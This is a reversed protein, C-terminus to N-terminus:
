TKAPRKTGNAVEVSDSITFFQLTPGREAEVPFHLIKYFEDVLEDVDPEFAKTMKELEAGAQDKTAQLEKNVNEAQSLALQQSEVRQRLDKGEM